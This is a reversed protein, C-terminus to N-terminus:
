IPARVGAASRRVSARSRRMPARSRSRSSSTSTSARPSHTSSTRDQGYGTLAVITVADGLDRRVRRAVEYGAIDPPGIDIVAVDPRREVALAVGSAGDPACLVEHGNLELVERLM